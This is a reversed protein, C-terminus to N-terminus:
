VTNDAPNPDPNSSKITATATYQGVMAPARTFIRALSSFQNPAVTQFACDIPRTASCDGPGYPPVVAVIEGPVDFSVTVNNAYAPGRNDPSGIYTISQGPRVRIDGSGPFSGEAFRVTLDANVPQGFVAPSVLLVVGALFARM